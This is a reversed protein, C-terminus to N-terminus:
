SAYPQRLFSLTDAEARAASDLLRRRDTTIRNVLHDLNSPWLTWTKRPAQAHEREVEEMTQNYNPDAECM